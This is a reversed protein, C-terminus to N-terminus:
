SSRTGPLGTETKQTSPAIESDRNAMSGMAVTFTLRLRTGRGPGAGVRGPQKGRRHRDRLRQRSRDDNFV